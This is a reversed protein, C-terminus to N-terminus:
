AWWDNVDGDILGALAGSFGANYDIAVENSIFDSRDDTYNGNVDPGGVLAGNLTYENPDPDNIDTTGSAARHHPNQSYDDGFGVVYSFGDPNDGLMYDLQNSAFEYLSGILEANADADEEALDQAYQVALLATNASYRNSGWQDLWALGDNTETGPTTAISNMWYDLHNEIDNVYTQNGTQGALLLATAQSKEDWSYAWNTGGGTYYSESKALYDSDGTAQYLWNSAWSLEDEYGSWSNYFQGVDEIADSYKGQYAEGFAFLQEAQALLEDAYETQGDNRFLISSAALAAATEAVVETGPNDATVAYTPRDMTMDEPAGWYSHDINGDGVQAYFVDDSLDDPTGNDDYARMFYDNVWELHNLLDDYTGAAQYGDAFSIGGWALTTATYAMPLGFKVHDGADYWGGTLDVGVDSGDELASDGRWSIPYDEPLEGSYQAYYFQMSLDLAEAYDASGFPGNGDDTLDSATDEGTGGDTDGGTADDTGENTDDDVVDVPEDAQGGTGDDVEGDGDADADASLFTIGTDTGNAQFGFSASQGAALTGN